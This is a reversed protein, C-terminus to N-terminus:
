EYNLKGPFKEQDLVKDCAGFKLKELLKTHHTMYGCMFGQSKATVGDQVPHSLVQAIHLACILVLYM